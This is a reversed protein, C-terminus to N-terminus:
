LRTCNDLTQLEKKIKEALEQAQVPKGGINCADNCKNSCVLTMNLPHDIVEGGYRRRNAKTDAIRHAYQPVGARLYDGCVPCYVQQIILAGRRENAELKARKTM